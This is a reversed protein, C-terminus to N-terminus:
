VEGLAEANQLADFVESAPFQHKIRQFLELIALPHSQPSSDGGRRNSPLHLGGCLGGSKRYGSQM